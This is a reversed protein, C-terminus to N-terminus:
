PPHRRLRLMPRSPGPGPRWGPGAPSSRRASGRRPPRGGPGATRPAAPAAPRPPPASGPRRPRREGLEGHLPQAPPVAGARTVGAVAGLDHRRCVPTRCSGPCGPRSRAATRRPRGRRGTRGPGRGACRIGSRWRAPREPRSRAPRGPQRRGTPPSSPQRAPRARSGARRQAPDGDGHVGRGVGPEVSVPWTAAAM